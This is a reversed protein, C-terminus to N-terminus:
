SPPLENPRLTAHKKILVIRGEQYVVEITGFKKRAQWRALLRIVARLEPSVADVAPADGPTTPGVKM